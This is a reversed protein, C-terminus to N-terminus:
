LLGKQKLKTITGRATEMPISLDQSLKKCQVSRQLTKFTPDQQRLWEIAQPMVSKAAESREHLRPGKCIKHIRRTPALAGPRSPVTYVTTTGRKRELAQLARWGEDTVTVGRDKMLDYVYVTAAADGEGAVKCLVGNLDASTEILLKIDM